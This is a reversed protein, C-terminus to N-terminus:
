PIIQGIIQGYRIKVHGINQHFAMRKKQFILIVTSGFNFTGLWQGKDVYKAPSYHRLHNRRIHDDYTVTISSVNFAGVKVVAVKGAETEMITILRENRAFLGPTNSVYPERVPFLTGPIQRSTIIQGSVPAFIRHCDSPALYFTMFHGDYFPESLTPTVLEDVSYNIEKAQVISDKRLTGWTIIRGDVPSVIGNPDIPRFVPNLERIFFQNLSRFSALPEKIEGTNIAYNRVFVSIVQRALWQPLRIRSLHGTITSAIRLFPM